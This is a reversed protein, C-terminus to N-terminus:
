RIPVFGAQEIMRQGQESFLLNAYARGAKENVGSDQKIVVFLYRTLPYSGNAFATTNVVTKSNSDFPSVFAQKNTISLPMPSVTALSVPDVTKQGIVESATAYGIGGPTEAVQRISDTTTAVQQVNLSFEEGQLVKEQIFDATGSFELNRSFPTTPLDPGGVQKWNTVKGTFIDKLQSLTLGPIGVQPNAYFAIGDVAVPIQELTFGLQSAQEIESDKLPRSSQAFSLKGALLMQLGVGSGHRNLIADIFLLKFQPHAEAIATVIAQSRLPAFTTSGGYTFLGQPVNPVSAFTKYVVSTNAWSRLEQPNSNSIAQQLGYVAFGLALSTVVIGIKLLLQSNKYALMALRARDGSNLDQSNNPLNSNSQESSRQTYSNSTFTQSKVWRVLDITPTGLSSRTNIRNQYNLQNNKALFIKHLQLKQSFSQYAQISANPIVTNEEHANIPDVNLGDIIYSSYTSFNAAQQKHAQGQLDIVTEQEYIPVFMDVLKGLRLATYNRQRVDLPIAVGPRVPQYSWLDPLVKTELYATPSHRDILAIPGRELCTFINALQFDSLPEALYYCVFYPVDNRGIDDEGDHYLWGFLNQKPTVQHLYAARYGLVPPNYSDWYYSVIRQRFAEEIKAPVQGSALSMFGRGAFSTYVIQGLLLYM